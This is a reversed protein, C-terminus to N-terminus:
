RSPGAPPVTAAARLVRIDGYWAVIKEQTNDTDSLIAVGILRGPEAGFVKRYDEVYNRRYSQWEKLGREGSAVVLKRVRSTLANGIVTEVPQRNEWIYMMTAYPLERGSILRAKEFMMKDRLPLTSKDGDFALVVRVPSDDGSRQTNDAGDILQDVRWRWEIIPREAPDISVRAVLGSASRDASAKIVVGERTRVLRYQTLRKNPALPWAEWGPPLRDDLEATSIPPVDPLVPVDPPRNDPTACGALAAVAVGCLAIARLRVSPARRDRDAPSPMDTSAHSPISARFPFPPM